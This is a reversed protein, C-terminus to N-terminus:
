AVTDVTRRGGSDDVTRAREELQAAAQRWAAACERAAAAVQGVWHPPIQDVLEGWRNSAVANTDLLRLLFRGHDTLRVSPDRKLTVLTKAMAFSALSDSEDACADQTARAQGGRRAPLLPSAGNQIRERVDRATALSLGSEKAIERLSADPHALVYEGALRRREATDVIRSKGDLGIRANLQPLADGSRRRISGVTKPSLGAVTAIMRDSWEPHSRMIRLAAANRDSRSLPLGHNANCNVALLFAEAADGDFYQVDIHTRGNLRAARLRHAGDIVRSTARHVIIPPLPSVCQALQQVHEENEGALRPSDDTVLADLAVRVVPLTDAQADWLDASECPATTPSSLRRSEPLAM